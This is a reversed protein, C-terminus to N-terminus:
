PAEVAVPEGTAPHPFALRVARLAIATSADGGAYLTDGVIPHGSAALHARIQHTRGTELRVEVLTRGDERGDVRWHTVAERGGDAVPVVARRYPDAPDPGLPADITGSGGDVVGEVLARYTREVAGADLSRRFADQLDRRKLVALLGSTPRDLRHGPYPRWAAWPDDPRAGAHWLLAGVLTGSRHRGMPHVHMGSPKDVVLLSRDEHLVTLDAPEPVIARREAVLAAVVDGYVTLREGGALPEAIRGVRGDVRIAGAAILPGVRRASVVALHERVHDVLRRGAAEAPVVHVAEAIM